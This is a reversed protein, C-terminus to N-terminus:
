RGDDTAHEGGAMGGADIDEVMDALSSRIAGGDGEYRGDPAFLFDTEGIRLSLRDGFRRVSAEIGARDRLDAAFRKLDDFVFM